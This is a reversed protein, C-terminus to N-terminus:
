QICQNKEPLRHYSTLKHAACLFVIECAACLTNSVHKKCCSSPDRAACSIYSVYEVRFNVRTDCM